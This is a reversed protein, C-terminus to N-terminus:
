RGRGPPSRMNSVPSASTRWNLRAIRSRRGCILGAQGNSSQKLSVAWATGEGGLIGFADRVRKRGLDLSLEPDNLTGATRRGAKAAAIEAEYFPIEPNSASVEAVLVSVPIPGPETPANESRAAAALLLISSSYLSVSLSANM